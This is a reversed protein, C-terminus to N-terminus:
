IQGNYSCLNCRCKPGFWQNIYKKFKLFDSEAKIEDPLSNWIHPGLITLSKDGYRVTNHSHVKINSPKHTLWNTKQFIDKMFQPNLDNLTKFIEIGLIRLRKVEMTCKGSKKLLSESDSDFDDYLIRLAREQIKEIKRISKAPCFHWVLPCYNFNAYVFSNILVEKEKFGMYRKLRAIANLQNSAKQCLHSIHSEFTLKNDIEIGLLTVSKETTIESNGIKLVYENKMNKNKNVILAQFKDPNVIMENNKFWNIAINSEAELNEILDKITTKASAVTNDDAFNHLESNKIWLFLDNIFINFLIPGLISGQPVGSLLIQFISYTNGIKVNQKRRKLYSYFFTLCKLSFGYAHMKAILIDHPICDFAKSLDMLVAGVFKNQDLSKKWNEILRILVHSTSFSERYASIFDSLFSNVYDKINNHIFREYIKSFGNLLSVPRYNSIKTKDGKKFLPRVTATKSNESYRDKSIDNSIINRLHSDIVNASMNIFKSPIGDPGTAKKIDLTKIIKNIEETSPTPLNFVKEIQFSNNIALISPHNKYKEIIEGVTVKDLDCNSSNGLCTSKKGSTKHVINIYHENFLEVLNKEDNIIENNVNISIQPETFVGKNTLFPKVTSWFKKNCMIGEKTVNRFYQRKSNKCISNCKNKVKKLHLFNERSPWKLYKNKAKSKNMIAKSLEKTMFPAQNGRIKKQKLPAHHDLIDRFIETLKNYQDHCNRYLGGEILKRDLDNLFQKQDFNSHCRYFVTKPPLKKFSSRLVTLILKHCDSIGTVFNQTKQFSRPKNTLLLDILTGKKSKFCTTEKVLNDLNFIDKLDSLHSSDPMNEQTDINLDGALLLNEYQNSIKNLSNSIEIFFDNKNFKPPRYAFLICWKKNSITLEICITEVTKTEFETLRKALIGEKIFLIKGGGKSNRDRRFLPFQYGDIRFQANPYSSDLKTEDVCLIDIPVKSLIERLSIIKSSLSNINM